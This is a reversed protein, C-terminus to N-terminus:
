VVGAQGIRVVRSKELLYTEVDGGILEYGSSSSSSASSSSSSFSLRLFKGFRSSNPNRVQHTPFCPTLPLACGETRTRFGRKSQM